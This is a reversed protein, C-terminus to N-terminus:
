PRNRRLRPYAAASVEATQQAKSVQFVAYGVICCLVQINLWVWGVNALLDVSYVLQGCLVPPDAVKEHCIDCANNHATKRAAFPFIVILPM